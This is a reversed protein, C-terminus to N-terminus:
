QEVTCSLSVKFCACRLAHQTENSLDLLQLRVCNHRRACGGICLSLSFFFFALILSHAYNSLIYLLSNVVIRAVIRFGAFIRALFSAQLAGMTRWVEFRVAGCHCRGRHVVLPVDSAPATAESTGAAEQRASWAAAAAEATVYETKAPEFDFM